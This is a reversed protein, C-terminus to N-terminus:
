HPRIFDPGRRGEIILIRLSHESDFESAEKEKRAVGRVCHMRLNAERKMRWLGM